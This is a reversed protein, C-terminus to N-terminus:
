GGERCAPLPLPTRVDIYLPAEEPYAGVGPGERRAPLPISSILNPRLWREAEEVGRGARLSPYPTPVDISLAAEEPYTGV